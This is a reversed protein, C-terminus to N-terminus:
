SFDDGGDFFIGGVDPMQENYFKWIKEGNEGEFDLTWKEAGAGNEPSGSIIPKRGEGYATLTIGAELLIKERWYGGRELLVTDGDKAYVLAKSISKFPAKESTGVNTDNGNKQSVYFCKGNMKSKEMNPTNRIEAIRKAELENLEAVKRNGENIDFFM